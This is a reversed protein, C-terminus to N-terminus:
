VDSGSLLDLGVGLHVELSEQSEDCLKTSGKSFSIGVPWFTFESTGLLGFRVKLFVLGSHNFYGECQVTRNKHLHGWIQVVFM